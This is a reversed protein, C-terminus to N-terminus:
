RNESGENTGTCKSDLWKIFKRYHEVEFNYKTDKDANNRMLFYQEISSLYHLAKRLEHLDIEEPLKM